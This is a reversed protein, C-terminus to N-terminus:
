LVVQEFAYLTCDVFAPVSQLWHSLAYLALHRSFIKSQFQFVSQGVHSSSTQTLACDLQLHFSTMCKTRHNRHDATTEIGQKHERRM